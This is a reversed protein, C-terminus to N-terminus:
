VVHGCNIGRVQDVSIYRPQLGVGHCIARPIPHLEYFDALRSSHHGPLDIFQRRRLLSSELSVISSLTQHWEADQEPLSPPYVIVDDGTKKNQGQRVHSGFNCHRNECNNTVLVNANNIHYVCFKSFVRLIPHRRHSVCACHLLRSKCRYSVDVRATELAEHFNFKPTKASM